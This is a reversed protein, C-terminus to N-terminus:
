HNYFLSIWLSKRDNVSVNTGWVTCPPQKWSVSYGNSLSSMTMLPPTWGWFSDWESWGPPQASSRKIDSSSGSPSSWVSQGLGISDLLGSSFWSLLIMIHPVLLFLVSTCVRPASRMRLVALQHTPGISHTTVQPRWALLECLTQCLCAVCTSLMRSDICARRQSKKHRWCMCLALPDPRPAYQNQKNFWKWSSLLCREKNSGGKLQKGRECPNSLVTTSYLSWVLQGANHGYM